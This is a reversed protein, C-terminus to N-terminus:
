SSLESNFREYDQGEQSNIYLRFSIYLLRTFYDLKLTDM